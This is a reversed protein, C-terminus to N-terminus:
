IETPPKNTAMIESPYSNKLPDLAEIVAGIMMNVSCEYRDTFDYCGAELIQSAPVVRLSEKSKLDLIKQIELMNDKAVTAFKELYPKSISNVYGLIQQQNVQLPTEKVSFEKAGFMVYSRKDRDDPSESLRYMGPALQVVYRKPADLTQESALSLVPGSPTKSLTIRYLVNAEVVVGRVKGQPPLFMISSAFSASAFLVAVVFGILPKM